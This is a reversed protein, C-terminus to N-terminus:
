DNVRRTLRDEAPRLEGEPGIPWIIETVYDNPDAVDAPDTWYIERPDGAPRLGHEAMVESMLRYSRSLTEYPGNHKFVLARTAPFTTIDVPPTPVVDDGVLWGTQVDTLGEDDAEPCVLLPPGAASHAADSLFTAVEDIRRPVIQPLEDVHVRDRIVAARAEPVQKVDLDFRVMGKEADPVLSEEGEILRGLERVIRAAEVARGELRARHAALLDRVVGADASLITRVDDLPVELSRLRRIAEADRAQALRYYRYGTEADVYAPRLLDIEDYHRLAKVTLGSVRAFAGISLLKTTTLEMSEM